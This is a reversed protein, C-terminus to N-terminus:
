IDAASPIMDETTNVPVNKLGGVLEEAIAVFVDVVISVERL